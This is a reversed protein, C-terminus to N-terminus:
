AAGGSGGETAGVAYSDPPTEPRELSIHYVTRLLDRLERKPGDSGKPFEDDLNAEAQDIVIKKVDILSTYNNILNAVERAYTRLNFQPKEVEQEVLFRLSKKRLSETAINNKADGRARDLAQQLRDKVPDKDPDFSKKTLSSPAPPAGPAPPAAAAATPDVPPVATPDAVAAATPDAIAAATPDVAPAAAPDATPAAPATPDAAPAAAAPDASATPDTPTPAAQEYLQQMLSLRYSEQIILRRIRSKDIVKMEFGGGDARGEQNSGRDRVM